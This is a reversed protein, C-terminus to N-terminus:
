LNHDLRAKYLKLLELFNHSNVVAILLYPGLNNQSSLICHNRDSGSKLQNILGKIEVPSPPPPWITGVVNSNARSDM